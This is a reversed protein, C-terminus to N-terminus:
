GLHGHIPIYSVISKPLLRVGLAQCREQLSVDGAHSTVLVSKKSIGLRQIVQLGNEPSGVIEYDVLFQAAESKTLYAGLEVPSTMHLVRRDQRRLRRQWVEHITRDDDLVVVTANEPIALNEVFWAPPAVAPLAISVVTGQGLNSSIDFSGHMGRVFEKAQFVGLGTGQAKGSTYGQQGVKRLTEPSMGQGDDRILLLVQHGQSAIELTVTGCKENLAEVANNILNSMVASIASADISCFMRYADQAAVLQIRVQLQQRWRSRAETVVMEALELISCLQAVPARKETAGDRYTQLLLNCIDTIREVASRILLRPEEDLESVSCAVMKLAALPSRVDHAVQTSIKALLAAQEMTEARVRSAVNARIIAIGFVAALILQQFKSIYEGQILGVCVLYDHIFFAGVVAFAAVGFWGDQSRRRFCAFVGAAPGFLMLAFSMDVLGYTIEVGQSVRAPWSQYFFISFLAISLFPVLGLWYTVHLYHWLRGRLAFFVSVLSYLAYDSAYRFFFHWPIAIAVPVVQRPIESFSVMFIASIGCYWRFAREVQALRDDTHRGWLGSILGILGLSMACVLPLFVTCFTKVRTYSRAVAVEALGLPAKRPGTQHSKFAYVRLVLDNPRGDRLDTPTLEIDIPYNKEYRPAPPFDGRRSLSRGNLFVEVADGVEGFILSCKKESCLPPTDFQKRYTVWHDFKADLNSPLDGPLVIAHWAQLDNPREGLQFQWPGSLDVTLPM